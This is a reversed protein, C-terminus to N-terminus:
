PDTREGERRKRWRTNRSLARYEALREVRGGAPTCEGTRLGGARGGGQSLGRERRCGHGSVRPEDLDGVVRRWQGFVEQQGLRSAFDEEQGARADRHAVRGPQRTEALEYSSHVLFDVGRNTREQILLGGPILLAGSILLAGGGGRCGFASVERGFLVGFDGSKMTAVEIHSETQEFAAQFAFVRFRRASNPGSDSFEERGLVRGGCVPCEHAEGVPAVSGGDKCGIEVEEEFTTTASRPLVARGVTETSQRSWAGALVERSDEM